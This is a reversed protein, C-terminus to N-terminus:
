ADPPRALSVAALVLLSSPVKDLEGPLWTSRTSRELSAILEPRGLRRRRLEEAVAKSHVDMM